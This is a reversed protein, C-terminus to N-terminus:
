RCVGCLAAIVGALEAYEDRDAAVDAVDGVLMHDHCIAWAGIPDTTTTTGDAFTVTIKCPRNRDAIQQLADLRLTIAKNNM